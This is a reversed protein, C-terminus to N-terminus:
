AMKKMNWYLIDLFEDVTPRDYLPYPAIENLRDPYTNWCANIITRINKNICFATTDYKKAIAPFLYKNLYLLCEENEMILEVSSIIYNYGKYTSHIGLYYQLEKLKEM